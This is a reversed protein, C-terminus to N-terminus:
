LLYLAEDLTTRRFSQELFSKGKQLAFWESKRHLVTSNDSLVQTDFASRVWKAMPDIRCRITMDAEAVRGNFAYVYCADVNRRASAIEVQTYEKETPTGEPVLLVNISRDTISTLKETPTTGLSVSKHEPWIDFSGYNAMPGSSQFSYFDPYALFEEAARRYSDYFATVHAMILTVAGAADIQEPAVVGLRDTNSWERFYDAHEQHHGNVSIEFDSGRLISSHM